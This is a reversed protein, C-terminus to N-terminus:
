LGTWGTEKWSQGTTAWYDSAVYGECRRVPGNREDRWAHREHDSPGIKCDPNLGSGHMERFQQPSLNSM